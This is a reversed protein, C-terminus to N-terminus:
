SKTYAERLSKKGSQRVQVVMGAVALVVIGVSIAWDAGVLVWNAPDLLPHSSLLTRLGAGSSLAGVIATTVIMLMRPLNLVLGLVILLLAGISGFVWAVGTASALVAIVTGLLWGLSGTLVIVAVSYFAYAMWGFLVALVLGAVWGPVAAMPGGSSAAASTLILGLAFGVLAGWVALAIKALRFGAFCLFLGVVLAVIGSVVLEMAERYEAVCEGNPSDCM